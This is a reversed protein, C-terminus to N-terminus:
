KSENVEEMIGLMGFKKIISKSLGEDTVAVCARMERGISAGLTDKDSYLYIPINRFFSMDKFKKKTNDSADLAVIVVSAKKAKIANEVSFEGAVVNRGKASIGLLSCIPDNNM